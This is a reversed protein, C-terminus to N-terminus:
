QEVGSQRFVAACFDREAQTASTPARSCYAKSEVPAWRGFRDGLYDPKPPTQWSQRSRLNRLAIQLLRPKRDAGAVVVAHYEQRGGGISARIRILGAGEGITEAIVVARAPGRQPQLRLDNRPGDIEMFPQEGVLLVASDPPALPYYLTSYLEGRALIRGESAIKWGFEPSGFADRFDITTRR